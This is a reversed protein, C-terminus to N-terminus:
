YDDSLSRGTRHYDRRGNAGSTNPLPQEKFKDGLSPPIARILRELIANHRERILGMNHLCHNTVHSLTEEAQHCLRCRTDTIAKGSRAQVTRTPLLNLRARLTFRYQAFTLFASSYIFYNSAEALSTSFNARGQDTAERLSTLHRHYTPSKLVQNVEQRKHWHVTKDGCHISASEPSIQITSHTHTLSARVSSWLSQDISVTALKPLRGRRQVVDQLQSMAIKRVVPDRTDARFKFAQAVRAIHMEDEICPIGLGGINQPTYLYSSCSRSPICVAKKLWKRTGTDLKRCWSSGPFFIKLAYTLRPYLFRRYADLKHWEALPSTMLLETDRQLSDKISSLDQASGAGVPCGLYKYRQRWTLAPIDDAGLHLPTPDVYPLCQKNCVFVWM